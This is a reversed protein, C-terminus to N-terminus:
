RQDEKKKLKDLIPNLRGILYSAIAPDLELREIELLIELLIENQKQEFGRGRRDIRGTQFLKATEIGQKEYIRRLTDLQSNSFWNGSPGPFLRKEDILKGIKDILAKVKQDNTM